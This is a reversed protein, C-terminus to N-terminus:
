AVRASLTEVEREITIGILDHVRKIVEDALATVEHATAGAEAVLVLPQTEHLHVRGKTYGKLNLAHDLLWALSIKVHTEDVTHLPMEPFTRHLSEGVSKAVIPNKFFSGATRGNPPFKASRISRVVTAIASPTDLAEGRAAAKALDPYTLNPVGARSLRLAARVVIGDHNTKFISTRYAFQAQDREIRTIRGSQISLVDAWMFTQSLEAGYAGINQVVAGGVSGPIGALNEIGWLSREGAEQVLSDWEVGAGVVVLEQEGERAFSAGGLDIKLVLGTFGADGVLTNSGGGLVAVSLSHKNAFALAAQIEAESTCRAFHAAEGGVQLTTYPALSQREEIM